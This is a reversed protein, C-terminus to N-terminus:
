GKVLQYDVTGAFHLWNGGSKLCCDSKGALMGKTGQEVEEIEWLLNSPHSFINM